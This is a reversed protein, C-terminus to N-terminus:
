LKYRDCAPTISCSADLAKRREDALTYLYEVEEVSMHRCHGEPLEEPDLRIGAFEVRRLKNLPRGVLRLMHKVQHNYGGNIRLDVVGVRNDVNKAEGNVCVAPKGGGPKMYVGKRLNQIEEHSLPKRTDRLTARYVKDVKYLPNALANNLLGDSTLLLLGTTDVDLRGIPVCHPPPPSQNSANDASDDGYSFLQESLIDFVTARNDKITGGGKVQRCHNRACLTGAPKNMIVYIHKAATAPPADNNIEDVDIDSTRSSCRSTSRHGRYKVTNGKYAILDHGPRVIRSPQKCVEGNVTVLGDSLAQAAHRRSPVARCLPLWRALSCTSTTGNPESCSPGAAVAAAASPLSSAGADDASCAARLKKHPPPPAMTEPQYASCISLLERRRRRRSACRPYMYMSTCTCVHVLVM